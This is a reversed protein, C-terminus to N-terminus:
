WSRKELRGNNSGDDQWGGRQWGTDPPHGKRSSPGQGFLVAPNQSCDGGVGNIAAQCQSLTVYICDPAGGTARSTACWPYPRALGPTVSLVLLLASAALLRRM